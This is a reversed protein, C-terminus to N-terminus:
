AILTKLKRWRSSTLVIPLVAAAGVVSADIAASVKPLAKANFKRALGDLRKKLRRRDAARAQDLRRYLEDLELNAM